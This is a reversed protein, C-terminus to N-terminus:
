LSNLKDCDSELFKNKSNIEIYNLTHEIMEDIINSSIKDGSKIKIKDERVIEKEFENKRVNWYKKIIDVGVRLSYPKINNSDIQKMKILLKKKQFYRGKKDDYKNSYHKFDKNYSNILQFVESISRKTKSSNHYYIKFLIIILSFLDQSVSDPFDYKRKKTKIVIKKQNKKKSLKQAVRKNMQPHIYKGTGQYKNYCGKDERDCVFGYDIIQVRKTKSNFFLNELKLDRHSFGLIKHFCRVAMICQLCLEDLDNYNLTNEIIYDKLDYGDIFELFILDIDSVKRVDIIRTTYKNILEIQKSYGKMRFKEIKKKIKRCRKPEDSERKLIKLILSYDKYSVKLVDGYTGSGMYKFEVLNNIKFKINKNHEENEEDYLNYFTKKIEIINKTTFNILYKM